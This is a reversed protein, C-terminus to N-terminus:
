EPPRDLLEDRLARASPRSLYGSREGDEIAQRVLEPGLHSRHCDRIARELTTVPVGDVYDLDAASLDQRHLVLRSPLTRSTRFRKPVTLHIKAPNVDSVDFLALASEHSIVGQVTGPWLAAEVYQALPSLPFHVLRYLGRSVREIAGRREMMVLAMASVGADRAQLATVYGHQDAALDYVSQYAERPM